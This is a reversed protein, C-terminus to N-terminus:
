PQREQPQAQDEGEVIDGFTIVSRGQFKKYDEYKIIM